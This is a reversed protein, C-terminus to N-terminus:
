RVHSDGLELIAKAIAEVRIELIDLREDIPLPPTGPPDPEM